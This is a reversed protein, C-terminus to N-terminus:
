GTDEDRHVPAIRATSSWYWNPIRAGAAWTASTRAPAWAFQRRRAGVLWPHTRTSPAAIAVSTFPERLSAPQRHQPGPQRRRLVSHRRTPRRDRHAPFPQPAVAVVEVLPRIQGLQLPPCAPVGGPHEQGGVALCLAPPLSVMRTPSAPRSRFLTGAARVASNPDCRSIAAGTCKGCRPWCHTSRCSRPQAAQQHNASPIAWKSPKM